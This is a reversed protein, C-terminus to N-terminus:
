WWFETRLYRLLRHALAEGVRHRGCYIRAYGTMGPRLNSDTDEVLCTVTLTAPTEGRAVPTLPSQVEVARAAVREVRARFTQFPLSRAKLEAQQEPQVEAADQEALAVEVQLQAPEEVECILEGERLYQGVKEKLHPTTILGAVPSRVLEKEQLSELYRDEEELRALRAREAEIEEPRSGAELLALTGRADALDKERRALEAESEICGLAQRARKQARAQEEQSQFTRSQKQATQFEEASVANQNRLQQARHLVALAHDREARYQAIQKELRELDEQLAKRSRQLDKEALDRWKEAREVRHRQELVKEPRPGIELLRLQSCAERIEARKQRRRSALDPVEIRALIGGAYVRDGEDYSVGQLFGSVPARVEARSAPRVQFPGSARDEIEVLYLLAPLAALIM